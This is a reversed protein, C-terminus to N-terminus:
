GTLVPPHATSVAPRSFRYARLPMSPEFGERDTRASHSYPIAREHVHARPREERRRHHGEQQAAADANPVRTALDNRVEGACGKEERVDVGIDALGRVRPPATRPWFPRPPDWTWM